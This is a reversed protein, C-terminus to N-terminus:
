LLGQSLETHTEFIVWRNLGGDTLRRQHTKLPHQSIWITHYQRFELTIVGRSRDLVSGGHAHDSFSLRSTPDLGAIRNDLRGAAVRTNSQRHSRGNATILHLQDHGTM